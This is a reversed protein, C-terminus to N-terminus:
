EELLGEMPDIYIEKNEIDIKKVIDEIYPILLDKKEYRQIVWVDNAGPSLIEKVKGLEKEDMTYVTCGIIEHYYYEGEELETLDEKGVKLMGGKLKEADTLDKIEEFYLMDFNKHKRHSAVTLEKQDEENSNLWFLKQGSSFREEFDTIRIVKVEGKIGHTNVVKGVNFLNNETM